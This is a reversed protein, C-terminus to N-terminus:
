SIKRDPFRLKLKAGVLHQAVAGSSIPPVAALLDKLTKEFTDTSGTRILQTRRELLRLLDSVIRGQLGLLIENREEPSLNEL